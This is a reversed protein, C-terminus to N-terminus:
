TLDSFYIKLDNIGIVDVNDQIPWSISGPHVIYLHDLNLDQLAIRMSKTVSPRDAYKFEFGLRHKGHQVFLDLEAGGHTAWFYCDHPDVQLHRIVEELAFGEFSAGLLPSLLFDDQTEMRALTHFIGSDRFYIKPSKVHRKGLNTYWPSLIRLMLTDSLIDLYRRATQQSIELSQGIQSGNFIQGHFHALMMWFRHLSQAPLNIGLNPIDQELFTKIYNKRWNISDQLDQALYSKPFGGRQWLKQWDDTEQLCFPTIEQYYIRGALSESSQKLLDRSASGLILFQLHAFEDHLVRLVPFLNPSRQVEDIVVLGSLASLTLYPNQLRELDQPKELDFYNRMKFDGLDASYQKALTTKGCQRPGLLAVIRHNSFGQSISQLYATRQM